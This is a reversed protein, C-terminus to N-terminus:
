TGKEEKSSTQVKVVVAKDILWDAVKQRQTRQLWAAYAAPKSKKAAIEEEASVGVQAESAAYSLVDSETLRLDSSHRDYIKDLLENFIIVERADNKILESLSEMEPSASLQEYKIGYQAAASQCHALLDKDDVPLPNSEVLKKRVQIRKQEQVTAENRRDWERGIASKLDELNDMGAAKAFEDDIEPVVSERVEKITCSFRIKRGRLYRDPHDQGFQEDFHIVDGAKHGIVLSSLQDGFQRAGKMKPRFVFDSFKAGHVPAGADDEGVLDVV